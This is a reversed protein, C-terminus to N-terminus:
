KNIFNFSRDNGCYSKNLQLTLKIGANRSTYETFVVEGSVSKRLLEFDEQKEM